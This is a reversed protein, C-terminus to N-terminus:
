RRSRRRLKIQQHFEDPYKEPSIWTYNYIGMIIIILPVLLLFKVKNSIPKQNIYLLNLNEITQKM